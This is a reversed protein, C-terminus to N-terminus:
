VFIRSIHLLWSYNIEEATDTPSAFVLLTNNQLVHLEKLIDIITVGPFVCM